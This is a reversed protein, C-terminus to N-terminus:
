YANLETNITKQIALYEAKSILGVIYQELALELKAQLKFYGTM